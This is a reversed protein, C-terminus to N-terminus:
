PDLGWVRLRSHQGFHPDFSFAAHLGRREIVAFSLADCLSWDKDAHRALLEKARQEEEPTVRLVTMMGGFLWERGAARGLKRGLLAHTEAELFNTIVSPRRQAGIQQAVAVARAHCRDSADLFALVASSDWLVARRM